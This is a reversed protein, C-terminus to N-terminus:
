KSSELAKKFDRFKNYQNNNREICTKCRRRGRYNWCSDTKNVRREFEIKSFEM